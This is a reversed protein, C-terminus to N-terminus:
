QEPTNQATSRYKQLLEKVFNDVEVILHPPLQRIKKILQEIIELDNSM